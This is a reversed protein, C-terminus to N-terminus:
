AYQKIKISGAQNLLLAITKVRGVPNKTENCETINSIEKPRLVTPLAAAIRTYYTVPYAPQVAILSSIESTLGKSTTPLILVHLECQGLLNARSTGLLPLSAQRQVYSLLSKTVLRTVGPSM